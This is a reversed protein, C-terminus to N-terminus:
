SVTFEQMMGHMFHPKGDPGPLFCILGYTGPGFDYTFSQVVGHQMGAIGGIANGPPPGQPNAIWAMLDQLTKGPALKVLEVEHSQAAPNEVRITHVGRTIPKSLTFTYDSLTMTVDGTIARAAAPVVAPTVRLPKAMGKMVHPVHDPMDVFCLLAYNGPELFMTANADSGPDPANPGGVDHAWAPPAGGAQFAAFLDQLTKGDDLKMIAMHHLNTGRNQLQITVLGAQVEDPAQFAFDRAVVTVVRPPAALAQVAPAAEARGCAAAAVAAAAVLGAAKVKTWTM